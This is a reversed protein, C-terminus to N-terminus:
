KISELVHKSIDYDRSYRLMKVFDHYTGNKAVDEMAMDLSEEDTIIHDSIHELKGVAHKHMDHFYEHMKEFVGGSLMSIAKVDEDHLEIEQGSKLKYKM